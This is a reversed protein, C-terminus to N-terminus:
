SVQYTADQGDASLALETFWVYQSKGGISAAYPYCRLRIPVTRRKSALLQEQQFGGALTVEGYSRSPTTQNGASTDINSASKAYLPRLLLTGAYSTAFTGPIGVFQSPDADDHGTGGGSHGVVFPQILTKVTNLNAEELEFELFMNGGMFVGEVVSSGLLDSTYEEVDFTRIQRVGKEGIVGLTSTTAGSYSATPPTYFAKFPGAIAQTVVQTPM